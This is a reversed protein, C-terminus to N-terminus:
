RRRGADKGGHAVVRPTARAYLEGTPILKAEELVRDSQENCLRKMECLANHAMLRLQQVGDVSDSIHTMWLTAIGPVELHEAGPPSLVAGITVQEFPNVSHAIHRNRMDIYIQHVERPEGDFKDYIAPTLGERM